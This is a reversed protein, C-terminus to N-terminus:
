LLSRDSRFSDPLLGLTAKACCYPWRPNDFMVSEVREDNRITENLTHIAQSKRDKDESLIGETGSFM